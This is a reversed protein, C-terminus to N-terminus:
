GAPKATERVIKSALERVKINGNQSQRSLEAWAQEATTSSRAMLIGIAHDITSRSDLAAQLDEALKRTRAYRQSNAVAALASNTFLALLAAEMTDFRDPKNSYLNFAGVVSSDTLLPAALYGLVGAKEAAEAFHPWRERAGDIDTRVPQRTEAAELCPGAGAEYQARDLPMVDVSTTAVTEPLGHSAYITISAEYGPPFLRAAITTLRQLMGALDDDSGLTSWLEGMTAAVDVGDFEDDRGPALDLEAM